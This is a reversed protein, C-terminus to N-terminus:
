LDGYTPDAALAPVPIPESIGGMMSDSPHNKSSTLTLSSCALQKQLDLMYQNCRAYYMTQAEVFDKLCHLHHAHTNSVGELLLRVNEVQQNFNNQALRLEAESWSSAFSCVKLWKVRLFGFVYSFHASYEEGLPPTSNLRASQADAIRAQKLKAKAADLDLRKNQLIRQERSITQYNEKVFSKVPTLFSIFSSQIFDKETGGIKKQVNGCKMLASGYATGPGFDHGSTIMCEGLHEHPTMRVPAQKELMEYLLGEIRVTPNPQLLVETQQTIRDTWHKTREARTLLSELHPDLETKEAQGLTEETFQVARSVFAGFDAALRRANFEM